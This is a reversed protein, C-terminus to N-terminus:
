LGSPLVDRGTAHAVPNSGNPAVARLAVCSEFSDQCCVSSITDTKLVMKVEGGALM